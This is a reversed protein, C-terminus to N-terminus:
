VAEEAAFEESLIRLVAKTRASQVRYPTVAYVDVAPLTWDPLVNKLRGCSLDDAIDGAPLVALGLGARVLELLAGIRNCRIGEGDAALDFFDAGRRMSLRATRCYLWRCESLDQPSAVPHRALYAPAACVLQQQRALPRAILNEDDLAHEGGRLAIDAGDRPLDVLDDDFVLEPRVAPHERLLRNLSRHLAPHAAMGSPLAIRIEGGIEGNVQALQAFADDTCRLLRRCSDALARGADTPTLSRTSRNFLKVGYERELRAIHQSVAPASMGLKQAAAAMTKCELLTAFVLLPKIERM